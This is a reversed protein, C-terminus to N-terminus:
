CNYVFCVDSGSQTPLVTTLYNTTSKLSMKVEHKILEQLRKIRSFM